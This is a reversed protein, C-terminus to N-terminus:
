KAGRDPRLLDNADKFGNPPFWISVDHNLASLRAGAAEWAARSAGKDNEGSIVIEGWHHPPHFKKLRGGGALAINGIHGFARMSLGTELGESVTVKSNYYIEYLPALFIVGDDGMPGLSDGKGVKKGDETLRIRQISIVRSVDTLIKREVAELEGLEGCACMTAYASRIACVIAPARENEFPCAGHYRVTMSLTDDICDPLGRKAALYHEGLTGRIDIAESWIRRAINRRRAEDDGPLKTVPRPKPAPLRRDRDDGHWQPLGLRQRVHAQCDQWPDSAFSHVKVHDGEIWVSLSRDAPSHGPGPCLVRRGSVEGRLAAAAQRLNM